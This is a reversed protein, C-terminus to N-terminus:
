TLARGKEGCPSTSLPQLCAVHRPHCRRQALGGGRCHRLCHGCRRGQDVLARIRRCGDRALGPRAHSSIHPSSRETENIEAVFIKNCGHLALVQVVNLGVPGAGLVLVNHGREFPSIQMVVHWAVALPEILSATELSISDPLAYFHSAPAVFHESMGGGYGAVRM